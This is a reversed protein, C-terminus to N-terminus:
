NVSRVGKRGQNVLPAIGGEEGYSLPLPNSPLKILIKYIEM